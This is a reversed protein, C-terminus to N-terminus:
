TCFVGSAELTATASSAITLGQDTFVTVYAPDGRKAVPTAFAGVGEPIFSVITNTQEFEAHTAYTILPVPETLQFNLRRALEDYSSEAFSAIQPLVPEVRDYYSIRFHPTEYVKWEFTDYRVKNKGGIFASYQAAAPAAVMVAVLFLRISHKM